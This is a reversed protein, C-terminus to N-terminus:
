GLQTKFFLFRPFRWREPYLSETRPSPMPERILRVLFGAKELLEFYTELPRHVYTTKVPLGKRDLSTM